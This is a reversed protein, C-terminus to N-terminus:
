PPGMRLRTAATNINEIALWEAAAPSHLITSVTKRNMTMTSAPLLVEAALLPTAWRVHRMTGMASVSGLGEMKGVLQDALGM